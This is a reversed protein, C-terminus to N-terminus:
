ENDALVELWRVGEDTIVFRRKWLSPPPPAAVETRAVMRLTAEVAGQQPRLCVSRTVAASWEAGMHHWGTAGASLSHRTAVVVLRGRGALRVLQQGLQRYWADAREGVRGLAHRDSWYFASLSDVALLLVGAHEELRALLAELAVRAQQSSTATLLELRSAASRAAAASPLHRQLLQLLRPMRVHRDTDLLVVASTSDCSLAAAVCEMLLQTKGSGGPGSIEVIDGPVPHHPCLETLVSGLDPRPALRALLQRGSEGCPSSDCALMAVQRCARSTM